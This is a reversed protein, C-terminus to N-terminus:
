IINNRLVRESFWESKRYEEIWTTDGELIYTFKNRLGNRMIILDNIIYEKATKNEDKILGIRDEADYKEAFFNDCNYEINRGKNDRLVYALGASFRDIYIIIAFDGKTLATKLPSVKLFELSFERAIDGFYEPVQNNLDEWLSGM